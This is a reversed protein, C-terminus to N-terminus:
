IVKKQEQNLLVKAQKLGEYISEAPSRLDHIVMDM